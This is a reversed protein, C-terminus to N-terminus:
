EKKALEECYKLLKCGLWGEIDVDHQMNHYLDFEIDPFLHYISCDLDNYWIDEKDENDRVGKCAQKYQKAWDVLTDAAQQVIDNISPITEFLQELEKESRNPFNVDKRAEGWDNGTSPSVMFMLIRDAFEAPTRM